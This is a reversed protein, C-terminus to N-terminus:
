NESPREARVITFSDVPEKGPELRLGLQERIATFLSPGSDPLAADPPNPTGPEPTFQLDFDYGGALGTKDVVVRGLNGRGLTWAFYSMPANIGTYHGPGPTALNMENGNTNQKFNPGPKEYVLDYVTQVKKEDRLILKFRNALLAQLMLMLEDRSTPRAAKAVIDYGDSMSSAWAPGGSVQDQRLTYATMILYKLPINSATFMQGGAPTRVRGSEPGPAGPKISAVEFQAPPSGAPSQALTRPTGALSIFILLAAPMMAMRWTHAFILMM